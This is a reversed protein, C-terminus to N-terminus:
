RPWKEAVKPDVVLNFLVASAPVTATGCPCIVSESTPGTLALQGLGKTTGWRQIVSANALTIHTDTQSFEGALVWGSQIVVIRFSASNM